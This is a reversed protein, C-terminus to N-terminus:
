FEKGIKADVSWNGGGRVVFALALVTWLLPYEFGGKNWYFGKDWHHLTAVFMFVAISAAAPRTLLGIALLIGGFFEVCAVAYALLLAPEYGSAAFAKATGQVGPNGFLKVYGHPVAMLGTAVRIAPVALPRLADYLPSLFPLIRAPTGTM